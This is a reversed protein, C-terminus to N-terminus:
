RETRLRPRYPNLALGAVGVDVCFLRGANPDDRLEEPSLDTQATTVYLTTGKAGGLACSSPQIADVAVRALQEGSPSYRRVEHGGWVAVWVAGEVDVCLGDPTGERAVDFQAFLRKGSIEGSPRMDFAHITGPGSDVYYMTGEDPSWGIGNSITVGDLVLQAGTTEHYRYLSGRHALAGIAMSGVWFRGWPDAAGDNTLVDGGNHAEPAAVERMEGSEFLYSISQNSAVVWGDDRNEMPAFATLYGELEYSRIIEIQPGDAHARYFTGNPVDVWQLESTVEDWRCGEGESYPGTTCPSAIFEEM